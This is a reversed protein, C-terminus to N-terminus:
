RGIDMKEIMARLDRCAEEIDEQAFIASVLAFGTMGCGSLTPLNDRTIGGIAAVPISVARSIASLTEAGVEWTNTKTSTPFMAGVGLYDAGAKEAALAQEVTKATVGIIAEPGLIERAAAAAMDSQGVHVGDAGCAKALEVRDNVIFPVGYARCLAKIEQAEALYAEDSVDKERLQLMTIGGKLAEEVQAALTTGQTWRSDTVAYLTLMKGDFKM